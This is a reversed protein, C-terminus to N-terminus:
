AAGLRAHQHRRRRKQVPTAGDYILDNCGDSTESPNSGAGSGGAAGRCRGRAVGHDAVRQRAGGGGGGGLREARRHHPKTDPFHHPQPGMGFPYETMVAGSGAVREYLRRHERPYVVDLGCGLVGITRGGAELAGEHAAGDIGRALGSVVAVGRGALDGALVKRSMCGTLPRPVPVSWPWSSGKTRKM